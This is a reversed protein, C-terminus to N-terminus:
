EFIPKKPAKTSDRDATPCHDSCYQTRCWEVVPRGCGIEGGYICTLQIKSKVLSPKFAFLAVAGLLLAFASLFIKKKM